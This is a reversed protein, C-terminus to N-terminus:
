YANNFVSSRAKYRVFLATYPLCKSSSLAQVDPEVDTVFMDTLDLAISRKVDGPNSM